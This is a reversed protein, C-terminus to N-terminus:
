LLFKATIEKLEKNNTKLENRARDPLESIMEPTITDAVDAIEKLIDKAYEKNGNALAMYYQTALRLYNKIVELTHDSVNIKKHTPYRGEALYCNDILCNVRITTHEVLHIINRM